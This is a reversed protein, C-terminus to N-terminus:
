ECVDQAFGVIKLDVESSVNPTRSGRDRVGTRLQRALEPLVLAIAKAAAQGPKGPIEVDGRGAAFLSTKHLPTSRRGRDGPIPLLTPGMFVTEYNGGTDNV